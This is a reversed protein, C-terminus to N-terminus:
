IYEEIIGGLYKIDLQLKSINAHSYKCETGELLSLIIGDDKILRLNIPYQQSDSLTM